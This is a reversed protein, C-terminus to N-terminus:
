PLIVLCLVPIQFVAAAMGTQAPLVLVSVAMGHQAPQAVSSTLFQVLIDRTASGIIVVNSGDQNWVSMAVVLAKALIVQRVLVKGVSLNGEPFVFQGGVVPPPATPVQGVIVKGVSLHGLPFVFQGVVLLLM